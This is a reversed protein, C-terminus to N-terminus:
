DESSAMTVIGKPEALQKIAPDATARQLTSLRVDFEHGVAGTNANIFGFTDGQELGLEHPTNFLFHDPKDVQYPKFAGGWGICTM